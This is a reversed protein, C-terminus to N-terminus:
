SNKHQGRRDFPLTITFQTGKGVFSKVSIDGGHEKIYSHCISLGHGVGKVDDKTSFFTDFIKDINAESIGVGTDNIVIELSDSGAHTKVFLEGGTPMADRANTIMNLFVQRLQNKSAPIVHGEGTLDIRININQEIFQQRHLTIIEDLLRNIDTQQIDESGPRAFSLMKRLTDSLRLTEDVAMDLLARKEHGEAIEPKLLELTNMIGYLPNNVEHAILSTLRGMAALKESQLLMNQTHKLRRAMDLHEEFDVFIGVSAFEEQRENYIISASLKAQVRGGDRKIFVMPFSVLVGTGGYEPGRLLAMIEEAMGDPYIKRVDMQGLVNEAPYGLTVEAAKNWTIIRGLRDAAIILNPSSQIVRDLFVHTKKLEKEVILRCIEGKQHDETKEDLVAKMVDGSSILGLIAGEKEVLLHRQRKKLLLEDLQWSYADCPVIIIEHNMCDGVMTAKNNIGKKVSARLYDRETWIGLINEKDGVLLSGIRNEIMKLAAHHITTEPSVFVLESGKQEIIEEATKM